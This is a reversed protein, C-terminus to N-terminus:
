PSSISIIEKLRDASNYEPKDMNLLNRLGGHVDVGGLQLHTQQAQWDTQRNIGESGPMAHCTRGGQMVTFGRGSQESGKHSGDSYIM